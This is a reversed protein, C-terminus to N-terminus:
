RRNGLAFMKELVARYTQYGTRLMMESNSSVARFKASFRHNADAWIADVLAEGEETLFLRYSRRDSMSSQKRILGRAELKRCVPAFNTRLLGVKDSLQGASQGPRARCELLIHAQQMTLHYEQCLPDLVRELAANTLSASEFLLEMFEQFTM